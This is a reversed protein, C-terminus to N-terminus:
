ASPKKSMEVYSLDNDRLCNSYYVGFLAFLVPFVYYGPNMAHEGPSIKNWQNAFSLILGNSVIIALAWYAFAAPRYTFRRVEPDFFIYISSAVAVLLAAGIVGVLAYIVGRPGFIVFPLAALLESLLMM